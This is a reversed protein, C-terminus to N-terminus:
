WEAIRGDPHRWRADPHRWEATGPVCRRRTSRSASARVRLRRSPGTWPSSRHRIWCNTRWRAGPLKANVVEDVEAAGAIHDLEATANTKVATFGQAPRGLADAVVDGTAASGRTSGRATGCRAASCNTCPFAWRGSKIDWLVQEIAAATTAPM